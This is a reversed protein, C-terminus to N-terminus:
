TNHLVRKPARIYYRFYGILNSSLFFIEMLVAGPSGALYNHIIWIVTGIAMLQRLLKDEKSFSAVTGFIAGSCGLISLLGEYTLASTIVTIGVFLWLFLKSTSFITTIFRGAAILGLCAATWHGLCMFHLSIMICSVLLCSVIHVREKFQFSIVDSCIAIGILIQSLVFLSM